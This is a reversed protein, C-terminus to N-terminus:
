SKKGKLKNEAGISFASTIVEDQWQKLLAPSSFWYLPFQFIIIDHDILLEQENAVNIEFDPYKKYLNNLTVREVKSLEQLIAKNVESDALNPHAVVVLIDKQANTLNALFLFLSFAILRFSSRYIM